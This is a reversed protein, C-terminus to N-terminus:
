FCRSLLKLNHLIFVDGLSLSSRSLSAMIRVELTQFLCSLVHAKDLQLIFVFGMFAFVSNGPSKVKVAQQFFARHWIKHPTPGWTNGPPLKGQGSDMNSQMVWYSKHAALRSLCTKQSRTM